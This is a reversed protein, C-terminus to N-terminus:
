SDRPFKKRSEQLFGIRKRPKEPPPLLLPRIREYLDRLSSDHLLLKRDIEALRKLMVQTLALNERMKVFARVVFVSMQVAQSSNLITAAMIAGHETFAWPFKRLGGRGQNSIVNQSILASLEEKTLQFCFDVPFRNKNRKVAQNFRVTSTGYLTALDRDLIIKQGRLSFIRTEVQHVSYEIPNETMIIEQFKCFMAEKLTLITFLPGIHEL